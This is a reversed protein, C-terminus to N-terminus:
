STKLKKKVELVEQTLGEKTFAASVIDSVKQLGDDSLDDCPKGDIAKVLAAFARTHPNFMRETFDLAISLNKIEALANKPKNNSVHRAISALKDMIATLGSGIGSELICMKSFKHYRVVNMQEIDDYIEIIHGGAKFEKM